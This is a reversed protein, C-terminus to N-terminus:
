ISEPDDETIKLVETIFMQFDGLNDQLIRYIEDESIEHYLHVVKNRFKTMAVYNGLHVPDLLGNKTLIRYSEAQSEPTGLRNKAIIHDCIDSMAEIAVQLLHKAAEGNRFDGKFETASLARLYELRRLNQEILSVKQRIKNQNVM